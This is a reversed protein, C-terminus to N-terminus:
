YVQCLKAHVAGDKMEWTCCDLSEKCLPLAFPENSDYIWNRFITEAHQTSNTSDKIVGLVFMYDNMDKEWEFTKPLRQPQLWKVYDTVITKANDLCQTRGAFKKSKDQLITAVRVLDPVNSNHFASALSSFVCSNIEGQMFKVPPAKECRLQPFVAMLSTKCSGVPIDVFKKQGLRKCEEVFRSGFQTSVLEENIPVVKGDDLKGKWIAHAHLEKTKRDNGHDDTKHMYKPTVYKVRTIKRDDVKIVISRGDESVPPKIFESHDERDMLKKALEKGYTDIVWDDEVPIQEEMVETGKKYHVKAM